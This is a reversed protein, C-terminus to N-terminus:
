KRYVSVILAFQAIFSIGAGAIWYDSDSRVSVVVVLLGLIGATLLITVLRRGLSELVKRWAALAQLGMITWPVLVLVLGAADLFSPGHNKSFTILRENNDPLAVVIVGVAILATYIWFVPRM